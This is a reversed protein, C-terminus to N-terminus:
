NLSGKVQFVNGSNVSHECLLCISKYFNFYDSHIKRNSILLQLAMIRFLVAIHTNKNYNYYKVRNHVSVNKTKKKLYLCLFGILNGEYQM